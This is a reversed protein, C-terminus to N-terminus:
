SCRQLSKGSSPPGTLEYVYKPEGVLDAPFAKLLRVRLDTVPPLEHM